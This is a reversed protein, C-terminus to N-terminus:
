FAYSVSASVFDRDVNRNYLVDGDFMTYGLSARWEAQYEVEVSIGLSENDEVFSGAPSPSRGDIGRRYAITPRLGLATGFANNYQLQGLLVIGSSEETPRCQEAPRPDLAFVGGLPLDSGSTCQNALRPISTVHPNDQKYHDADPMNVYGIETLLVGLDAGLASIVANSRTYTATTGIDLNFVQERVYGHFTQNWQGCVSKITQLGYYVDAVNGFNEWACSAAFATIALSDTDLQMPMNPRFAIEGQVGWDLVTTNFSMGYVEIDEPYEAFLASQYRTALGTTGTPTLAGGTSQAFQNICGLEQGRALSNPNTNALTNAVIGNLAATISAVGISDAGLAAHINAAALAVIADKTATDEYINPVVSSALGTPDAVIIDNLTNYGIIVDAGTAANTTGEQRVFSAPAGGIFAPLSGGFGALCGQLAAGRITSSATPTVVNPGAVPQYAITSAYPIRSAYNQYYFAFETSNLNEAYWRLALGYNDSDTPEDDPGRVLFDTDGLMAGALDGSQVENKHRQRSVEIHGNVNRTLYHLSSQTDCAGFVSDALASYAATAANASSAGDCNRRNSGSYAGSGVYFRNGNGSSGLEFADSNAFPSGGADLLIDGWGGYYAELTLDYPLALSGYIAEVPLLAEKIEAGPRRIAPVDIPNFVSNGGPIFTAEGWNIVQRGVRLALPNGALETNLDVYFDLLDIDYAQTATATELPATRAFSSDDELVADYFSNVRAFITINGAEAEIETTLKVTGGTLDGDDFNLRGDDTNIGGDYNYIEASGLSSLITQDYMCHAGASMAYASPNSATGCGYPGTVGDVFGPPPAGGAAAGLIIADLGVTMDAPGGNGAPLLANERSETRVSVGVSAINDIQISFDGLQMTYAHAPTGLAFIAAGALGVPLIHARAFKRTKIKNFPM